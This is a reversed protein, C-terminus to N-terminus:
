DPPKLNYKCSNNMLQNTVSENTSSKSTFNTSEKTVCNTLIESSGNNTNVNLFGMLYPNCSNSTPTNLSSNLVNGSSSTVYHVSNLQPVLLLQNTAMQATLLLSSSLPTLSLVNQSPSVSVPVYVVKKCESSNSINTAQSINNCFAEDNLSVTHGNQGSDIITSPIIDIRQELEDVHNQNLLKPVADNQLTSNVKSNKNSVNKLDSVYEKKGFTDSNVIVTSDEKKCSKRSNVNKNVQSSNLDPQDSKMSSNNPNVSSSLCTQILKKGCELEIIGKLRQTAFTYVHNTESAVLLLVEAGTLEALEVAKKMLGTKRKSFTSYRKTRDSIFEIPIKQKGKTLKECSNREDTFCPQQAIMDTIGDVNSCLRRKSGPPHIDSFSTDDNVESINILQVSNNRLQSDLESDSTFNYSNDGSNSLNEPCETIFKYVHPSSETFYIGNNVSHGVSEMTEM